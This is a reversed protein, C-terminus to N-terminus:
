CPIERFYSLDNLASLPLSPPICFFLGLGKSKKHQQRMGFPHWGKAPPQAAAIGGSVLDLVERV